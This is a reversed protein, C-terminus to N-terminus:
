LLMEKAFVRSCSIDNTNSWHTMEGLCWQVMGKKGDRGLLLIIADDGKSKHPYFECNYFHLASAVPM